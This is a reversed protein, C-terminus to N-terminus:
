NSWPAANGSRPVPGRKEVLGGYVGLRENPFRAVFDTEGIRYIFDRYRKGSDSSPLTTAIVDCYHTPKCGVIGIMQEYTDNTKLQDFRAAFRTRYADSNLYWVQYGLWGGVLLLAVVALIIKEKM